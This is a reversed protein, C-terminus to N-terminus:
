NETYACEHVGMQFFGSSSSGSLNEIVVCSSQDVHQDCFQSKRVTEDDRSKYFCEFILRCDGGWVVEVVKRDDPEGLIKGQWRKRERKKRHILKHGKFGDEERGVTTIRM